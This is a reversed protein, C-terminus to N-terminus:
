DISNIIMNSFDFVVVFDFMEIENEHIYVEHFDDVKYSLLRDDVHDVWVDM